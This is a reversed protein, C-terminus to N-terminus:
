GLLWILPLWRRMSLVISCHTWVKWYSILTISLSQLHGQLKTLSEVVQISSKMCIKLPQMLSPIATPLAIPHILPTLATRTTELRSVKTSSAAVSKLFKARNLTHPSLLISQTQAQPSKRRVWWLSSNHCKLVRLNMRFNLPLLDDIMSPQGIKQVMRMLNTIGNKAQDQSVPLKIKKRHHFITMLKCEPPFRNPRRRKSWKRVKIQPLTTLVM